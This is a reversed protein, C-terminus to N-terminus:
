PVILTRVEKVDPAIAAAVTENGKRGNINDFAAGRKLRPVGCKFRQSLRVQAVITM